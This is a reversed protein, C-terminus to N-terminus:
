VNWKIWCTESNIRSQVIILVPSATKFNYIKITDKNINLVKTEM